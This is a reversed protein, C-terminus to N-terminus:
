PSDHRRDRKSRRDFFTQTGVAIASLALMAVLLLWRGSAALAIIVALGLLLWFANTIRSM